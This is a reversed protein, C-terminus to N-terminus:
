RAFFDLYTFRISTRPSSKETPANATHDSMNTSTSLRPLSDKSKPSDWNDWGDDDSENPNPNEQSASSAKTSSFTSQEASYEMRLSNRKESPGFTHSKLKRNDLTMNGDGNKTGEFASALDISGGEHGSDYKKAAYSVRGSPSNRSVSNSIAEDGVTAQRLDEFFTWLGERYDGALQKGSELIADKPPSTVPNYAATSISIPWTTVNSSKGISIESRSTHNVTNRPGTPLVSAPSPITQHCSSLKPSLLSLTRTHRSGSFVKRQSQKTCTSPPKQREHQKAIGSLSNPNFSSTGSVSKSIPRLQEIHRIENKKKSKEHLAWQRKLHELDTEARELEEKLELVRREQGALATLFAGSDEPLLTRREPSPPRAPLIPLAPLSTPAHIVDRLAM